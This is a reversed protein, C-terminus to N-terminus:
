EETKTVMADLFVGVRGPNRRLDNRGVQAEAGFDVVLGYGTRTRDGEAADSRTGSVRNGDIMCMSHDNCYIGIGNADVVSNREVGGMSMEDM